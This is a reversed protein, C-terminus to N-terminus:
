ASATPLEVLKTKDGRVRRHARHRGPRSRCSKSARGPSLTGYIASAAAHRVDRVRAGHRAADRGPQPRRADDGLNHSVPTRIGMRRALKAVNKTGVKIGVQRTSPTTPSRRRTARAHTVGAYADEYNNVTFREGGKRSTSTRRARRGPRARASARSAAGRRARVAQVVLRAPAPGAHRPQVADISYDHGGVMARVEGDNNDIAVLSARPGAPDPLWANVGERRGAAAALRDDDPGEARGRVGAARGAPRRRATSSRSSVWSTFYPYETDESRAPRADRPRCRSPWRARRLGRAHPLGARAHASSSTAGASPARRTRSRTM